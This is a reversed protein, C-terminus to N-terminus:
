QQKNNRLREYIKRGTKGVKSGIFSIKNIFNMISLSFLVMTIIITLPILVVLAGAKEMYKQLVLSLGGGFLGGSPKQKYSAILQRVTEFFDEHSADFSITHILASIMIILLAFLFTKKFTFVQRETGRLICWALYWILGLILFSAVQGFFGFMFGRILVGVIGVKDIFSLFMLLGTAFLVISVIERHETKNSKVRATKGNQSKKKQSSSNAM